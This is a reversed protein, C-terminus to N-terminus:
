YGGFYGLRDAHEFGFRAPDLTHDFSILRTRGPLDRTARLVTLANAAAGLGVDWIVFPEARDQARDHAEVRRVLDTQDVHLALAEAEPGLVPHFTEGTERSRLTWAGCALEVLEFMTPIEGAVSGKRVVSFRGLHRDFHGPRGDERRGVVGYPRLVSRTKEAASLYRFARPAFRPDVAASLQKVVEDKMPPILSKFAESYIM